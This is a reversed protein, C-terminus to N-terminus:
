KNALPNVCLNDQLCWTLTCCETHPCGSLGWDGGSNGGYCESTGFHNLHQDNVRPHESITCAAWSKSAFALSVGWCCCCTPHKYELVPTAPCEYCNEQQGTAKCAIDQCLSAECAVPDDCIATAGPEVVRCSPCGGLCINPDGYIPRTEPCNTGLQSCLVNPSCLGGLRSMAQIPTRGWHQLYLHNSIDNTWWKPFPEQECKALGGFGEQDQAFVVGQTSVAGCCPCIPVLLALVFVIGIISRM